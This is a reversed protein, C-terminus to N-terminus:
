DQLLTLGIPLCPYKYFKEQFQSAFFIQLSNEIPVTYYADTLDFSAM